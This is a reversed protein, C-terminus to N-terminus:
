KSECRRGAPQVSEVTLQKVDLETNTEVKPTGSTGKAPKAVEAVGRSAVEQEARVTGTVQVQQGVYDRLPVKSGNLQYTTTPDTSSGTSDIATLVFTNDGLGARLCGSVSASEARAQPGSTTQLDPASSKRNCATSTLVAAVALPTAYRNLLHLPM